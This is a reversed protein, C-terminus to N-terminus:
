YYIVFGYTNGPAFGFTPNTLTFTVNTGDNTVTAGSSVYAGDNFDVGIQPKASAPFLTAPVQLTNTGTFSTAVDVYFSVYAVATGTTIAPMSVLGPFQSVVETLTAGGTDNSLTLTGTDGSPDVPFAQAEGPFAEFEETIPEVIPGAPQPAEYIAIAYTTGGTLTVSTTTTCTFSADGSDPDVSAVCPIADYYWYTGDYVAAQVIDGDNVEVEGPDFEETISTGAPITLPDNITFEEFDFVTAGNISKSTRGTAAVARAISFAKINSPQGSSVSSKVTTGPTIKATTPLSISAKANGGTSALPVSVSKAGPAPTPVAATATQAKVTPVSAGAPIPAVYFAVVYQRGAVLPFAQSTVCTAAGSTISCNIQSPSYAWGFSNSPDLVAANVRSGVPVSPATPPTITVSTGSVLTAANNSSLLLYAFPTSGALAFPPTVTATAAVTTTLVEGTPITTTSPIGIKATFGPAAPITLSGTSSVATSGSGPAPTPSATATASASPSPSPSPITAQYYFAVGYTRGAVLTFTASTTCTAVSNAFTCTIQAPNYAWGATNTTDIVAGYVSSGSPIAISAPVGFSASTGALITVSAGVVGTAGVATNTQSLALFGLPTAGALRTNRISAAARAVSFATAISSPQTTSVTSTISEGAPLVTGAPLSLSASYGAPAPLAVTGTSTVATTGSASTPTQTPTAAPTPTAPVPTAPPIALSTNSGGCATLGASLLVFLGVLTARGIRM